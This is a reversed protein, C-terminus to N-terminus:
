PGPAPRGLAPLVQFRAEATARPVGSRSWLWSTWGLRLPACGGPGSTRPALRAAPVGAGEVRLRVTVSVDDGVLFDLLAALPAGATKRPIFDLARAYPMPGLALEIGASPDWVGGGLVADRGLRQNRGRRGIFTRQDKPIVLWGPQFPTVQATVRFMASVAREIAHASIPRQHALAALPLLAPALQALPAARDPTALGKTALGLLAYLQAALHSDQAHKAQLAPRFLRKVELACGILRDNFIDIFDRPGRQGRRTSEIVFETYRVPLPGTPGGLGFSSLTLTPRGPPGQRDSPTLALDVAEVDGASFGLHFSGRFQLPRAAPGQDESWLALIREAQESEFRYPEQRLREIVPTRTLPRLTRRSQRAM